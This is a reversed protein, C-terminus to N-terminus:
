VAVSAAVGIEIAANAGSNSTADSSLKGVGALRFNVPGAPEPNLVGPSKAMWDIM